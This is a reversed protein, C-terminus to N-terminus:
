PKGSKQAKIRKLESQWVDVHNEGHSNMYYLYVSMHKKDKKFVGTGIGIKTYTESFLNNRNKFSKDCDDLIM